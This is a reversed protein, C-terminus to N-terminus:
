LFDFLSPPFDTRGGFVLQPGQVTVCLRLDMVAQETLQWSSHEPSHFVCEVLSERAMVELIKVKAQAGSHTFRLCSREATGGHLAGAAVLDNLVQGALAAQEQSLGRLGCRNFEFTVSQGLANALGWEIVSYRM